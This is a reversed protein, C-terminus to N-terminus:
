PFIAFCDSLIVLANIQKQSIDALGGIDTLCIVYSQRFHYWLQKALSLDILFFTSFNSLYCSSNELETYRILMMHLKETRNIWVNKGFLFWFSSM